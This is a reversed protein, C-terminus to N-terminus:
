FLFQFHLETRGAPTRIAAIQVLVGPLAEIAGADTLVKEFSHFSRQAIELM